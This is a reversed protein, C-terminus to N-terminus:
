LGMAREPVADWPVDWWAGDVPWDDPDAELVLPPRTPVAEGEFLM